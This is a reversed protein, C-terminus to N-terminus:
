ISISRYCYGYRHQINSDFLYPSFCCFIRLLFFFCQQVLNLCYEIRFVIPTHTVRRIAASTQEWCKVELWIFEDSRPQGFADYACVFRVCICVIQNCVTASIVIVHVYVFRPTYIYGYIESYVVGAWFHTRVSTLTVSVVDFFYHCYDHAAFTFM